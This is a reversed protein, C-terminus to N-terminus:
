EPRPIFVKKSERIELPEFTYNPKKTGLGIHRVFQIFEGDGWNIDAARFKFQYFEIKRGTSMLTPNIEFQVPLPAGEEEAKQYAKSKFKAWSYGADSTLTGFQSHCTSLELGYRHSRIPIVQKKNIMILIDYLNAADRYKSTRRKRAWCNPNPSLSKDSIDPLLIDSNLTIAMEVSHGLPGLLEEAEFFFKISPRGEYSYFFRGWSVFENKEILKRLKDIDKNAKGLVKEYKIIANTIINRSALEELTDIHIATKLRKM